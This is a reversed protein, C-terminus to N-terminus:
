SFKKEELKRYRKVAWYTLFYILVAAVAGLLLTGTVFPWLYPKLTLYANSLNLKSWTIDPKVVCSGTIKIGFWLSFGYLPVVTWPNNIFSGTVTVVKSLRFIWALFLCTATHLGIIPTFAIFTGLAFALSLKHPTDDLKVISRIRDKIYKM